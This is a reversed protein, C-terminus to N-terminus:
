ILHGSDNVKDRDDITWCDTSDFFLLSNFRVVDTKLSTICRVVNIKVLVSTKLPTVVDIEGLVLKTKAKKKIYKKIYSM